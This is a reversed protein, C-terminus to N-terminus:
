EPIWLKLAAEYLKHEVQAEKDRIYKVVLSAADYGLKYANSEIYAIKTSMSFNYKSLIDYGFIVPQIQRDGSRNKFLRSIVSMFLSTVVLGEIEYTDFLKFMDDVSQPNHEDVRFIFRNDFPVQYDSHAMLYGAISDLNITASELPSIVLGVKRINKKFLYEISKYCSKVNDNDIYSMDVDKPPKGILVFPIKEKQLESLYVQSNRANTIIAGDIPFSRDIPLSSNDSGEIDNILLLKYGTVVVSDMIGNIMRLFFIDNENSYKPCYLGITNTKKSALNRAVANPKYGLLEIKEMVRQKVEDSVPRKGSLVYSVTSPSVGVAKAVDSIKISKSNHSINNKM